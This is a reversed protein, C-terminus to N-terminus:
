INTLKAKENREERSSLKIINPLYQIHFFHNYILPINTESSLILVVCSDIRLNFSFYQPKCYSGIEVAFEEAWLFDASFFALWCYYLCCIGIERKENYIRACAFLFMFIMENDRDLHLLLFWYNNSKINNFMAYYFKSFFFIFFINAVQLIKWSRKADGEKSPSHLKAEYIQQKRANQPLNEGNKFWKKRKKNESEEKFPM